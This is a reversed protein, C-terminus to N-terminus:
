ASSPEFIVPSGSAGEHVMGDGIWYIFRPEVYGDLWLEVELVEGPAAELQLTESDTSTIAYFWLEDSSVVDIDDGQEFDASTVEGLSSGSLVHVQFDCAVDTLYSDCSTWLIWTGGTYYEVFLGVGEGLQTQLARDADIVEHVHGEDIIIDDDDVFDHNHDDIIICGSACLAAAVMLGLPSSRGAWPLLRRLHLADSM